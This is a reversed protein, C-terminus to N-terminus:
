NRSACYQTWRQKIEDKSQLMTGKQNRLVNVRPMFKKGLMKILSYAQRTNGTNLGKGVEECEGHIWHEKDQRASKKVKRCFDKYRQVYESFDSKMQKLKRKEDALKLSEVSIWPKRATKRVPVTTEAASRIVDTIRTSHEELSCTPEISEM